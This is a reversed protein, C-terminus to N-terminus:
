STYIGNDGGGFTLTSETESVLIEEVVPTQWPRRERGEQEQNVEASRNMKEM